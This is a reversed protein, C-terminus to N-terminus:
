VINTERIFRLVESRAHEVTPHSSTIFLILATLKEAMDSGEEVGPLYLETNGAGRIILAMDADALDLKM